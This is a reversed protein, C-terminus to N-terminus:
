RVTPLRNRRRLLDFVIANPVWLVASGALLVAAASVAPVTVARRLHRNRLGTPLETAM